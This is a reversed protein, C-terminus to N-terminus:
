RTRVLGLVPDLRLTHRGTHLPHIQGDPTVPHPLLRLERAAPTHKWSTPPLTDPTTPLYHTPATLSLRLLHTVTTRPLRKGNPHPLLQTLNPDLWHTGDDTVYVPLLRTSDAGLRTTLLAPDTDRDTLTHLDTVTDPAPIAATDAAASQEANRAARHHDDALAQDALDNMDTYVTEIMATVDQPIAISTGARETLLDRTRRLLATDYVKTWAPPPFPSTPTLVALRPASAWHPRTGRTGLAHRHGRGARQLLQALPALDSAVLDFDVDLSQEAIQTSVVIWPETPRPSDPGLLTTVTETIEERQWLPMRAHLLLLNPRRSGSHRTLALYTGQADAVTNCVVLVCGPDQGADYVPAVVAQLREQRTASPTSGYPILDVTLQHARSSPITGSATVTGAGAFVWGPYAPRVDPLDRHGGGHLYAHVLRRALSQSLTASLLVVPVRLHGLWELLRVTLAHGYADYAHAEDIVVTKGSLGLWRLVNFRMPLCAMAAQDWTGVAVAALLGLHRRRVFDGVATVAGEAETVTEPRDADYEENLGALGHLLAVPVGGVAQAATYSRIRRWMAETTAMSPLFFGLGPLGAAAGMLRAGFLASETKGDGPPATVLLLGAGSVLSPLAAALDAQLPHPQAIGPFVEGFGTGEAWVPVGLQAEGVAGAAAERARVFHEGWGAEGVARWEQLRALVWEGRSAIWDALIVLGTVLVAAGASAVRGPAVPRGCAEFVVEVLAAREAEWGPGAGIRPEARGPDEMVRRELMRGYRGHHGGLIQGVQHAVSRGPRSATSYGYQRLLAPTVLHTVEEHRIPESHMWGSRAAFEPSSLFGPQPGTPQGQFSPCCKGIDHLGAWFAVMGRAEEESVGFERSIFARQGPPMCFDWLFLMVAATDLSHCTLPYPFPLSDFKGWVYAHSKKPM